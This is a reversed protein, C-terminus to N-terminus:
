KTIALFYILFLYITMEETNRQKVESEELELSFPMCNAHFTCGQIQSVLSNNNNIAKIYHLSMANKDRTIRFSHSYGKIARKQIDM